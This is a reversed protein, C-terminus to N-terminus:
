VYVDIGLTNSVYEREELHAYGLYASVPNKQNELYEAPGNFKRIHLDPNSLPEVTGVRLKTKRPDPLAPKDEGVGSIGSVPSIPMEETKVITKSSSYNASRLPLAPTIESGM